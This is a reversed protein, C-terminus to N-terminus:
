KRVHKSNYRFRKKKGYYDRKVEARLRGTARQQLMMNVSDLIWDENCNDLMEKYSDYQEVSSTM